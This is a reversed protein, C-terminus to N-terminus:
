KTHKNQEKKEKKRKKKKEKKKKRSLCASLNKKGNSREEVEGGKKELAIHNWDLM